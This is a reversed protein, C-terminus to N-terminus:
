KQTLELQAFNYAFLLCLSIPELAWNNTTIGAKLYLFLAFSWLLWSLINM